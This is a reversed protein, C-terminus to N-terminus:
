RATLAKSSEARKTNANVFVSVLAVLDFTAVVAAAAPHGLHGLYAATALGALAVVFGLWQGLRARAIDSAVVAREIERRHNGETDVMGVLKGPLLPDVEAYARLTEPSDLPGLHVSANVRTLQNEGATATDVKLSANKLKPEDAM